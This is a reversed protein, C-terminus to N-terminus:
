MREHFSRSIVELQHERSLKVFNVAYGSVRITLQPYKEPHEMADYLMERNLVNVNLHHAGKTFYGDMMTVLNEVRDEETAGLSKPVISFTNSIGDQSDRYRLKAVSSLSAIAGNKDRGHMPNAGPAFAVGKARGDPTAGTKKGYMVNSTITLLSLTPRANKYVPLKKLEESFFYVLDVGLHDVKDNDNGFCPFEGEIDFGETLGIDNRRATVKAYKIASLSDLAISLGAVTANRATLKETVLLRIGTMAISAFVSVVAGGLVCQPITRLLASFKPILGAVLLIGASTAFVRRSIVKTTGVIGVNQSFTATPPCGFFASIINGIGYGIIGGNLERDTPLRDMGGSTTASFDGMAQISNVLFLIALPIIASIEFKMGFEMPKPIQFWGASSLVSFDVMGFCLALVYGCLLGILISALKFLGKGYHNLAVVIALTVFAVVWNQWSGFVLAPTKGQQEVVLEYTNAPNGAMYNIATKYLSLGIAFIVTGIVLPPFVKRIQKITLGVIIAIVGGILMAGLITDISKAQAAIATMTPVYAFSVGIIVPLGSGIRIKNGYLQLLTSLAAFVLSMQILLGMDVNGGANNAANAVLIAPTVCGVVAALVHQAALPFVQGASPKGDWKFLESNDKKTERIGM